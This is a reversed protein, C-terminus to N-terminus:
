GASLILACTILRNKTGSLKTFLVHRWQWEQSTACYRNKVKSLHAWGADLRLGCDTRWSFTMQSPTESTPPYHSSKVQKSPSPSRRRSRINLTHSEISGAWSCLSAQSNFKQMNYTFKNYKESPWYCHHQDSQAFVCVPKYRQHMCAVFDPKRKVHGM